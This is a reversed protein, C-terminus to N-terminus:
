IHILSLGALYSIATKPVVSGMTLWVFLVGLVITVVVVFPVLAMYERRLFASSGERIADAIGKMTDNGADAKVVRMAMLAAFVLAVVGAVIAVYISIM